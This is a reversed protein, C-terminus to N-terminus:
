NSRFALRTWEIGATRNEAQPSQTRENLLVELGCRAALTVTEAATVEFMRRGAPVKGHRLSMLILGRPADEFPISEYRAILASAEAAYGQTGPVEM